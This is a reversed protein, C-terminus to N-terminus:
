LLDGEALSVLGLTLVALALKLTTALVFRALQLAFILVGKAFMYLFVILVAIKLFAFFEM